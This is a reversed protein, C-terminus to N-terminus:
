LRRVKLGTLPALADFDRDDHIVTLGNRAACVAILCDVSSRVTIGMRRAQRYLDAAELYVTVSLPSEVMPMSLFADRAIRFAAEERFGQLVEQMVPLCTAIEGFDLHKEIGLPNKKQFVKVWVSTDVLFSAM